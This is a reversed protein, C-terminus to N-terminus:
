DLAPSRVTKTKAIGSSPSVLDRLSSPLGIILCYSALHHRENMFVVAYV